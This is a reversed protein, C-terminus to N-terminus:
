VIQMIRTIDYGDIYNGEDDSALIPFCYFSMIKIKSFWVLFKSWLKYIMNNM